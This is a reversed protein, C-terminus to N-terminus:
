KCSSGSRGRYLGSTPRIRCAQASAQLLAGRGNLCSSCHPQSQGMRRGQIQLHGPLMLLAAGGAGRQAEVEVAAGALLRTLGGSSRLRRTHTTAGATRRYTSAIQLVSVLSLCVHSFIERRECTGHAPLKVCSACRYYQYSIGM